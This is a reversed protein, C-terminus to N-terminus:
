TRQSTKIYYLQDGGRSARAITSGDLSVTCGYKTFSVDAGNKIARPISFLNYAASPIYLVDLLKIGDPHEATRITATGIGSAKLKVNKGYTVYVDEGLMTVGSLLERNGTM